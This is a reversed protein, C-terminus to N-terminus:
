TAYPGNNFVRGSAPAFRVTPTEAGPKRLRDIDAARRSASVQREYFARASAAILPPCIPSLSKGAVKSCPSGCNFVAM